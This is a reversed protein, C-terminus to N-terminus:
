NEGKGRRKDALPLRVRAQNRLQDCAQRYAPDARWKNIARVTVKLRYRNLLSYRMQGGTLQELGGLEGEVELAVGKWQRDTPRPVWSGLGQGPGNMGYNLVPEIPPKRPRGPKKGTGKHPM